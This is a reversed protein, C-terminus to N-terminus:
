PRVGRPIDVSDIQCRNALEKSANTISMQGAIGKRVRQLWHRALRIARQGEEGELSVKLEERVRLPKKQYGTGGDTRDVSLQRGLVIPACSPCGREILLQPFAESRSGIM